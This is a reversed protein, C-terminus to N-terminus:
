LKGRLNAEQSRYLDCTMVAAERLAKLKEYNGAASAEELIGDQYNQSVRAAAKRADMTGEARHFELAEVHKLWQTSKVYRERAAGVEVASKRLYELAKHVNEESIFREM